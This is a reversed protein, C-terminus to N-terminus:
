KRPHPWGDYATVFPHHQPPLGEKIPNDNVYEIRNRVEAPTYLFVKYPRESWIPHDPTVDRLQYLAERAAGAFTDWITRADDRHRRVILHAHNSLIACAYVTYRFDRTVRAFVEALAQRKAPDFWLPEYELHNNAERYFGKLEARTPQEKQRGPRIPGLDALDPNRIEASGSGRPDNPLWFGYGTFILHHCVIIRRHTRM